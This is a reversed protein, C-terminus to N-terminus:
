IHNKRKRERERGRDIRALTYRNLLFLSPLPDLFHTLAYTCSINICKWWTFGGGWEIETIYLVNVSLLLLRFINSCHFFCGIISSIIIFDCFCKKWRTSITHLLAHRHSIYKCPVYCMEDRTVGIGFYFWKLWEM